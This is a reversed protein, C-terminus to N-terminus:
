AQKRKMRFLNVVNEEGTERDKYKAASKMMAYQENAMDFFKRGQRKQDMALVIEATSNDSLHSSLFKLLPEFAEEAYLVECGIIYDFHKEVTDETFDVRHLTFKDEVGNKLANIKSFLLAFSDVDSVTVDHGLKALVLSNVAGGAGVELISCENSFPFKTLTYGLILCSPWIKAWLPLTIKKGARTKDILKDLYQQMNKIQLVELSMGGVNVTEFEVEGFERVAIDILAGIPQDLNHVIDAM